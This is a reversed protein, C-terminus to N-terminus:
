NAVIAITKNGGNSNIILNGSYDGSTTLKTRDISITLTIDGIGSDQDTLIWSKDTSVRWELTGQGKNTINVEMNTTITGFDLSTPSVDLIPKNSKPETPNNKDCNVGTLALAVIYIVLIIIKNTRM